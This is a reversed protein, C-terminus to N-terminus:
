KRSNEYKKFLAKIRTSVILNWKKNYCENWDKSYYIDYMEDSSVDLIEVIECKRYYDRNLYRDSVKIAYHCGCLDYHIVEFPIGVNELNEALVAAVYCCGGSNIDYYLNMECCLENIAKFLQSKTM